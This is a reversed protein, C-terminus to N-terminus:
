ETRAASVYGANEENGGGDKAYAILGIIFGDDETEM